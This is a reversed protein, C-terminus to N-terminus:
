QKAQQAKKGASDLTPLAKKLLAEIASRETDGNSREVERGDKFVVLTAQQYVHLTRRLEHDTDFEANFLLIPQMPLERLLAAVIPKQTKCLPSWGACVHVVVPVGGALARDFAVKSYRLVLASASACCAAAAAFALARPLFRALPPM